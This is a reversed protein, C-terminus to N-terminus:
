VSEEVVWDWTEHLKFSAYVYIALPHMIDTIPNDTNNGYFENILLM